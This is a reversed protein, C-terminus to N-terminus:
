NNSSNIYENILVICDNRSLSIFNEDNDGLVNVRVARVTDNEITRVQFLEEERMFFAGDDGAPIHVFEEPLANNDARFTGGTVIEAVNDPVSQFIINHDSNVSLIKLVIDISVHFDFPDYKFRIRNRFMPDSCDVYNIVSNTQIYKPAHNIKPFISRVGVFCSAGFLTTFCNLADNCEASVTSVVTRVRIKRQSINHRWRRKCLRTCNEKIIMGDCTRSHKM